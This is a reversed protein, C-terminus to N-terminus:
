GGEVALFTCLFRGVAVTLLLYLTKRTQRIREDIEAAHALGYLILIAGIFDPLFDVVLINPNVFFLLGALIYGIRM